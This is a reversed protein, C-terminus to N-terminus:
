ARSEAAFGHVTVTLSAAPETTPLPVPLPAFTSQAQLEAPAPLPGNVHDIVAVGEISGAEPVIPTTLGRGAGAGTSAGAGVKVPGRIVPSVALGSM